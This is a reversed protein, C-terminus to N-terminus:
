LDGWDRPPWNFSDDDFDGIFDPGNSADYPLKKCVRWPARTGCGCFGPPGQSRDWLKVYRCRPCQLITEQPAQSM